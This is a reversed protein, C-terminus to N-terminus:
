ILFTCKEHWLIKSLYIAHKIALLYKGKHLYRCVTSLVPRIKFIRGTKTWKIRNNRDSPQRNPGKWTWNALKKLNMAAFV